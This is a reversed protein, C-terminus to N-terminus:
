LGSPNTECCFGLTLGRLVPGKLDLLEDEFMSKLYRIVFNEIREELLGM